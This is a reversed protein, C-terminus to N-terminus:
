SRSKDENNISLKSLNKKMKKLSFTLTPMNRRKKIKKRNNIRREYLVEQSFEEM